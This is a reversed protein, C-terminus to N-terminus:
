KRAVIVFEALFMDNESFFMNGGGLDTIKGKITNIITPNISCIFNMKKSKIM